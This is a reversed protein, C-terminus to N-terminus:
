KHPKRGLIKLLRDPYDTMIGDVGLDILRQMDASENITWVHVKLKKRHANEVFEKTIVSLQWAKRSNASGADAPQLIRELRNQFAGFVGYSGIPSASTAVEPCERRFEDIVDQNFSGVIVKETMQHERILSCLPKIISPTEQKPEINFTMAPLRPSFKQRSDSDIVGKGRFPFTQGGDTTFPYGADLKKVAALTM